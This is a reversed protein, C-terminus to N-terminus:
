IPSLNLRRTAEAQTAGDTKLKLVDALKQKNSTKGCSKHVMAKGALRDEILKQGAGGDAADVQVSCTAAFNVIQYTKRLEYNLRLQRSAQPKDFANGM